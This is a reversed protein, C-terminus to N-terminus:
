TAPLPPGDSSFQGLQVFSSYLQRGPHCVGLVRHTESPAILRSRAHTQFFSLRLVGKHSVTRGPVGPWTGVCPQSCSSHECSLACREPCPPCPQGEHCPFRCRHGCARPRGCEQLRRAFPPHSRRLKLLKHWAVDLAILYQCVPTNSLEAGVWRAPPLFTFVSRIGKMIDKLWCATKRRGCGMSVAKCVAHHSRAEAAAVVAAVLAEDEESASATATAAAAAMWASRGSGGAPVQEQTEQKKTETLTLTTCCGCPAACSHGCPLPKGCSPHAFTTRFNPAHHRPSPRLCRCESYGDIASPNFVSRCYEPM